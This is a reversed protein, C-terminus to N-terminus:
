NEDYLKIIEILKEFDGENLTYAAGETGMDFMVDKENTMVLDIYCDDIMYSISIDSNDAGGYITVGGVSELKRKRSSIEDMTKILAQVSDDTIDGKFSYTYYLASGTGDPGSRKTESCSVSIETTAKRIETNESLPSKNFLWFINAILVLVLGYALINSISFDGKYM